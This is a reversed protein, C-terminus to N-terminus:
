NNVNPGSGVMPFLIQHCQRLERPDAVLTKRGTGLHEIPEPCDDVAPLTDVCRYAVRRAEKGLAGGLHNLLEAFFKDFAQDFRHGPIMGAEDGFAGVHEIVRRTVQTFAPIWGSSSHASGVRRSSTLRRFSSMGSFRRGSSTCTPVEFIGYGSSCAPTEGSERRDKIEITRRYRFAARCLAAGDLVLPKWDGALDRPELPVSLESTSM